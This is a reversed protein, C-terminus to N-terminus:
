IDDRAAIIYHEKAFFLWTSARMEEEVNGDYVCVCM